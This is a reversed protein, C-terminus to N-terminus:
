TEYYVGRISATANTASASIYIDYWDSTSVVVNTSTISRWTPGATNTNSLTLLSSGGTFRKFEAHVNSGGVGGKIDTILAGITLYTQADLWLSGVHMSSSNNPNSSSVVQTYLLPIYEIGAAHVTSTASIHGANITQSPYTAPDSRPALDPPDSYDSAIYPTSRQRLTPPGSNVGFAYPAQTGEVGADFPRQLVAKSLTTITYDSSYSM